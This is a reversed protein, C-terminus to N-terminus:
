ARPEQGDGRDPALEGAHGGASGAAAAAPEAGGDLALGDANRDAVAEGALLARTAGEGRPRAPGVCLHADGTLVAFPDADGVAAM